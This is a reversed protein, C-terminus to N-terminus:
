GGFLRGWLSRKLPKAALRDAKSPHVGNGRVVIDDILLLRRLQRYSYIRFPKERSAMDLEVVRLGHEETILIREDKPLKATYLRAVDRQRRRERDRTSPEM